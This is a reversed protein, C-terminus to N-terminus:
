VGKLLDCVGALGVWTGIFGVLVVVPGVLCGELCEDFGGLSRWGICQLVGM